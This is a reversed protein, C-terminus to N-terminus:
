NVVSTGFDKDELAAFAHSAIATDQAGTGTLDAITIADDQRPSPSSVIDGLEIAEAKLTLGHLHQLEGLTEVQSLRDCCYVDAEALVAPALEQKGEADSGMATIHLGPHLWEPEILAGRAPTTTIVLQSAAVMSRPDDAIEVAVADGFHAALDDACRAANEPTRGHILLRRFQRELHAAQAQLRAQVGTGFVGATDVQAPALHRAALGGAAATRIDTLYGNDLFVARVMGTEAAFYVMLGNVSPLGLAPNNFFGPSIKVAFGDMGPVYATKVDIEGNRDHIDMSLIPPMLVTGQALTAFTKEMLDIMARDLRVVQKLEAETYLTINSAM